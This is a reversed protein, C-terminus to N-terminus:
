DSPPRGRRRITIGALRFERTLTSPAIDFTAAIEALTQGNAYRHAAATVMQDDLKRLSRRRVRRRELHAMVTTRHVGFERELMDITSGAQYAAVLVDIDSDTLRRQLPNSLQGKLDV